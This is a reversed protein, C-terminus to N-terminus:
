IFPHVARSLEAGPGPQRKGSDGSQGSSGGTQGKSGADSAM